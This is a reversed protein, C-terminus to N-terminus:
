KLPDPAPRGTLLPYPDVPTTDEWWHRDPATRWVAFHLHPAGPDADGTHGVVGIPEGPKLQAGETLGPAYGALHAYYYITGGDPSRQYITNGGLRSFHLKELRGPAAALVATGEPAMIDLAEHKRAGGERAQTFNDSLQEPRVGAVPITLGNAGAIVSPAPGPARGSVAIRTPAMGDQLHSHWLWGGLVIWFASTVGATVAVTKLWSGWGYQM